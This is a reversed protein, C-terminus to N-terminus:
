RTLWRRISRQATVPSASGNACSRFAPIPWASRSHPRNPISTKGAGPKGARLEALKTKLVVYRPNRPEYAALAEGVDKADAMGGLVEAPTPVKLDYLIDGSVRSWHVRGVAAHHAYTAITASLRVEADALAAPDSLATFNPVPYDALDLGDADVHGLYAIAAQARANANGDTIWLPAYNRASYFADFAAREKKGGLVRDFKGNAMERLQEAVPANADAIAAPVTAAAPPAAAATVPVEDGGTAAAPQPMAAPVETAAAPAEAAAPASPVETSQQLPAAAPAPTTAAPAETAAAPAEAAAPAPPVETSQQLPAAAPAPTTAAPQDAAEDPKATVASSTTTGPDTSPDPKAFAVVPQEAAAQPKVAPAPTASESPAETPTPAPQVTGGSAPPAVAPPSAIADLNVGFKPEASASGTSLALIVATSALFRDICVGPM